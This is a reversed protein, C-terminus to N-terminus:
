GSRDPGTQAWKAGLISYTGFLILGVAVVGLLLGGYPAQQLTALATEFGPVQKSGSAFVAQLTILGILVFVIGRASYGAQGIRTATKLEQASMKRTNLDRTFHATYAAALQGIGAGVWFLGFAIVIWKGMPGAMLSSPVGPASGSASNSPMNLVALAPPIMLAAYSIGSFIFGGRDFLGKMDSGRGLPDFIGRIFGWLSYGALGVATIALLVNGFPQQGIFAIAGTPSTASGGSGLAMQVALLGIVVYILGRVIFGFRALWEVGPSHSKQKAQALVAKGTTRVTKSSTSTM